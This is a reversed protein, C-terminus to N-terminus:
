ISVLIKMFYEVNPFLKIVFAKLFIRSVMTSFTPCIQLVYVFITDKPLPLLSWIQIIYVM